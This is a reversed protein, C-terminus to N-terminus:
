PRPMYPPAARVEVEIPLYLRLPSDSAARPDWEFLYDKPEAIERFRIGAPTRRAEFFYGHAQAGPHWWAFRTRGGVWHARDAWVAFIEPLGDWDRNERLGVAALPSPSSPPPRVLTSEETPEPPTVLALFLLPAAVVFGAVLWASLRPSGSSRPAPSTM